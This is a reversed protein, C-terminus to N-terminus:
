RAGGTSAARIPAASGRSAGGWDLAPGDRHPAPMRRPPAPKAPASAPTASVNSMVALGPTPGAERSTAASRMPLWMREYRYRVTERADSVWRTADVHTCAAAVVATAMATALMAWRRMQAQLKLADKLAQKMTPWTADDWTTSRIDRTLLGLRLWPLLFPLHTNHQTPPAPEASQM